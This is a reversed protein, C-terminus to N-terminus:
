EADHQSQLGVLFDGNGAMPVKAFPLDCLISEAGKADNAHQLSHLSISYSEIAVVIRKGINADFRRYKSGEGVRLVHM